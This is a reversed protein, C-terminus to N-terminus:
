GKYDDMAINYGDDVLREIERELKARTQTFDGTFQWRRIINQGMSQTLGELDMLKVIHKPENDGNSEKSSIVGVYLLRDTPLSRVVRELIPKEATPIRGSATQQQM